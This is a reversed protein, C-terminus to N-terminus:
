LRLRARLIDMLGVSPFDVHAAAGIPCAEVDAPSPDLAVLVQGIGRVRGKALAALDDAGITAAAGRTLVVSGRRSRREGELVVDAEAGKHLLALEVDSIPVDVLMRRCDIWAAIPSGPQVASGPASILSWVMAGPPAAIPTARTRQYTALAAAVVAEDAPVEAEAAALDAESRRLELRASDLERLAEAGDTNDDLMFVGHDAALRRLKERDIESQIEVLARQHDTVQANAADVTAQSAHGGALLKAMRDAQARELGLRQRIFTLNSTSAAIRADLDQDFAAQYAAAQISRADVLQHLGEILRNAATVRGKAEDLQARARALSTADAAPNEITAIRGDEGVRDGPHLPHADVYGAIPSATINIWTTVAADRVIISRLYPGGIWGIYVLLGALGFVVVLRRSARRIAM